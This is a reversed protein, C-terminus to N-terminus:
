NEAMGVCYIKKILGGTDTYIEKNVANFKM